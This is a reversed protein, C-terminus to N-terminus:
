NEVVEVREEKYWWEIPRGTSDIAEVLVSPREYLYEARATVLGEFNTEKDRVKVGLKIM